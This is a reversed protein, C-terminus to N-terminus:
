RGTVPNPYHFPPVFPSPYPQYAVTPPRDPPFEASPGSMPLSTKGWGEAYPTYFTAYWHVSEIKWVGRERRYRNEYPGEAWLAGQGLRGTQIFARWRGQARDPDPGVTVIGQLNMHNYLQGEALGIRGGGLVDRFVVLAHERGVYVGRGAIEVTCDDTFLDVARDWLAKDLYYGYARQLREVQQISRTEDLQRELHEVREALRRAADPGHRDDRDGGPRGAAGLGVMAALSGWLAHRREM